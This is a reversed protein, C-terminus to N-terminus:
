LTRRFRKSAGSPQKALSAICPFEFRHVELSSDINSDELAQGRLIRSGCAVLGVVSRGGFCKSTVRACIAM